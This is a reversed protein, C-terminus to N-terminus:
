RPLDSSLRYDVVVLLLTNGYWPCTLSPSKAIHLNHSLDSTFADMMARLMNSYTNAM